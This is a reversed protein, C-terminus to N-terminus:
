HPVISPIPTTVCTAQKASCSGQEFPLHCSSVKNFVFAVPKMNDPYWHEASSGALDQWSQWIGRSPDVGETLMKGAAAHESDTMSLFTRCILYPPVRIVM